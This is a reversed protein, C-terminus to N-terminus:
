SLRVPTQGGLFENLKSYTPSLVNQSSFKIFKTASLIIKDTMKQKLENIIWLSQYLVLGARVPRCIRGWVNSGNNMRIIKFKRQTDELPVQLLDLMLKRTSKITKCPCSTKPSIKDLKSKSDSHMREYRIMLFGVGESQELIDKNLHTQSLYIVCNTYLTFLVLELSM